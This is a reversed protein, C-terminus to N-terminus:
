EWESKQDGISLLGWFFCVVGLGGIVFLGRSITNTALVYATVGLAVIGGGLIKLLIDGDVWRRSGM